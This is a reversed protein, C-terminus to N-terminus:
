QLFKGAIIDDYFVTNFIEFANGSLVFVSGSLTCFLSVIQKYM